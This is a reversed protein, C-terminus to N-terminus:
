LRRVNWSSSISLVLLGNYKISALQRSRMVDLGVNRCALTRAASGSLDVFTRGRLAGFCKPTQAKPSAVMM